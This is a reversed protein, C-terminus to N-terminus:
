SEHHLGHERLDTLRDHYAAILDKRSLMGLIHAPNKPDVVPIEDINKQTIRRLAMHLDDDPTVTLVPQVALDTALILPGAGDGTLVTRLDRLSFIGILRGESDVVPFYNNPSSAALLLIQPLPM